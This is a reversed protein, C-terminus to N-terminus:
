TFIQTKSIKVDSNSRVTKNKIFLIVREKYVFFRSVHKIGSEEDASVAFIDVIM